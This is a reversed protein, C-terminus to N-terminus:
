PGWLKGQKLKKLIDSWKIETPCHEVEIDGKEINDKILFFRGEIHKTRKLCYLKLSEELIITSKNDQYIINREVTYGQYAIFVQYVSMNDWIQGGM